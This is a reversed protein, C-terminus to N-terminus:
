VFDEQSFFTENKLLKERPFFSFVLYIFTSLNPPLLFFFIEEKKKRFLSGVTPSTKKETFVNCQKAVSSVLAISKRERRGFQSIEHIKPPAFYV